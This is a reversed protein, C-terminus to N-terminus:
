AFGRLTSLQEWGWRRKITRTTPVGPRRISGNRSNPYRGSQAIGCRAAEIAQGYDARQM